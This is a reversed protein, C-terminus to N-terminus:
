KLSGTLSNSALSSSPTPIIPRSIDRRCSDSNNCVRPQYRVSEASCRRHHFFYSHQRQLPIKFRMAFSQPTQTYTGRLHARSSIQVIEVAQDNGASFAGRHPFKQVRFIQAVWQRLEAFRTRNKSRARTRNEDGRFNRVRRLLTEAQHINAHLAITVPALDIATDSLKIWGSFELLACLPPIQFGNENPRWNDTSYPGSRLHQSGILAVGYEDLLPWVQGRGKVGLKRRIAAHM